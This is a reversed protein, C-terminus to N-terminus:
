RSLLSPISDGFNLAVSLAAAFAQRRILIINPSEFDVQIRADARRTSKDAEHATLDPDPDAARM